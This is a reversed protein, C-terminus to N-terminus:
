LSKKASAFFLGFYMLSDKSQEIDKIDSYEIQLQLFKIQSIYPYIKKSQRIHKIFYIKKKLM